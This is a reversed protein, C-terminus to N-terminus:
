DHYTVMAIFDTQETLADFTITITTLATDYLCTKIVVPKGSANECCIAIIPHNSATGTPAYLTLTTDGVYGTVKASARPLNYKLHEDIQGGTPINDDNPYWTTIMNKIAATGLGLNSRADAATAAGTGGKTVPVLGNADTYDAKLMAGDTLQKNTMAYPQYTDDSDTALSICVDKVSITVDNQGSMNYFCVNYYYSQNYRYTIFGEFKTWSTPMTQTTLALDEVGVRGSVASSAKYQFTIKLPRGAAGVASAWIKLGQNGSFYAGSFNTSTCAVNFAHYGDTRTITGGSNSSLQNSTGTKPLINHVGLLANDAWPVVEANNPIYPEYVLPIGARRIMPKFVLNAPSQGSNVYIRVTNIIDGSSITIQKEPYQNKNLYTYAGGNIQYLMGIDTNSLGSPIGSILYDGAPLELNKMIEFEAAASATGYVTVSGDEATMFAVDSITQTVGQNPLLNKQVSKAGDSWSVKGAASVVTKQGVSDDTVDLGGEFQLGDEDAMATGNEDYITHGGGGGGGPEGKLNSFALAFTPNELTGGKTVTVAPTGTNADVTASMTINPTVGDTGDTGDQGDQGLAKVGTNVYAATDIDWIYWYDSVIKPYKELVGTAASAALDAYYKSNNHYAPDDSTVPVGGRTGNAWAEANEEQQQALAIIAPLETESIVVGVLPSKQVHMDFYLTSIENDDSDTLTLWCVVRGDAATMQVPTTITVVNGSVAVVHAAGVMDDETYQFGYSDPKQGSVSVSLGTLDAAVGGDMVALQFTRGSDFQSVNIDPVVGGPVINLYVKQM